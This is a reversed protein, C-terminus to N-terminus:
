GVASMSLCRLFGMQVSDLYNIRIDSDQWKLRGQKGQSRGGREDVGCWRPIETVQKIEPDGPAM